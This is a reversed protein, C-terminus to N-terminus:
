YFGVLPRNDISCESQNLWLLAIHQLGSTAFLVLKSVPSRINQSTAIECLQGWIAVKAYNAFIAYNLCFQTLTLFSIIRFTCKMHVIALQKARRAVHHNIVKSLKHHVLVQFRSWVLPVCFSLVTPLLLSEFNYQFQNIKLWSNIM